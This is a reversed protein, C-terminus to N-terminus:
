EVWYNIVEFKQGSAHDNMVYTFLGWSYYNDAFSAASLNGVSGGYFSDWGHSIQIASEASVGLEMGILVVGVTTNLDLAAGAGISTGAGAEQSLNLELSTGGDGEGVAEPGIDFSWLEILPELLSNDPSWVVDYKSMLTNKEGSNLYSSPDGAQHTFVSDDIKPGGHEVSANYFGREVQLTVPTRPLRMVIDTGILSADPHSTIKYTYIDFPITTFIVTDEMPGTTYAVTKSLSYSTSVSESSELSVKVAVGIGAIKVGSVPDTSEFDLGVTATASVTTTNEAAVSNSTATGYTTTCADTNQGIDAYCPAAALAAILVPETFVLKYSGENFSISLGDHDVNIPVLLPRLDDATAPADVTISKLMRWEKNGVLTGDLMQGPDSLGWVEFRNTAQSYFIIDHRKDSSLDGVVMASNKSDFHGTFGVDNAFLSAHPITAFTSNVTDFLQQWVGVGFDEFIMENAQIEARGDADLDLTNVHVFRLEGATTASCGSHINTTKVSDGLSVTQHVLDDLTILLYDYSCLGNPDFNTLGAFVIEDVSDGDVDGLSVDAVIATRNVESSQVLASQLKAYSKKADDYIIYRSTGTDSVGSIAQSIFENVLVLLESSPDYDLNGSEIILQIDSGPYAQSLTKSLSSVSLVGDTNDVFLLEASNNSVLGVVVEDYGDGNFDGSAISLKDVPNSSLVLRQGDAYNSTSEEYIQLEISTQGPARHVVFLEELGDRDVDGRTAARLSDPAIGVSLAWPTNAKDTPHLVDTAIELNTLDAARDLELLTMESTFGQSVGLPFGIMVLEDLKDFSQASGLPKYDEPLAENPAAERPTVTTDVGLSSLTGEVTGTSAPNNAADGCSTMFFVVVSVILIYMKSAQM